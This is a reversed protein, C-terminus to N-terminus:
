DTESVFFLLFYFKSTQHYELGGRGPTGGVRDGHQRRPGGRRVIWKEEEEPGRSLNIPVYMLIRLWFGWVFIICIRSGISAVESSDLQLHVFVWLRLIFIHYPMFPFPSAHYGHVHSVISPWILVRRLWECILDFRIQAWNDWEDILRCHHALDEEDKKKDKAGEFVAALVAIM